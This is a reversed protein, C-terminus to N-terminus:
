QAENPSNSIAFGMAAAKCAAALHFLGAATIVGASADRPAAADAKYDWLPLGDAPLAPVPVEMLPVHQQAGFTDREGM